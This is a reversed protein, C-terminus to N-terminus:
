YGGDKRILRLFMPKFKIFLRITFYGSTIAKDDSVTNHLYNLANLMNLSIMYLLGTKSDLVDSWADCLFQFLIM